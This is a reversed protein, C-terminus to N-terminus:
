TNLFYKFVASEGDPPLQGMWLGSIVGQKNVLLLTPTGRLGLSELTARRVDSIDVGIHTLYEKGEEVGHPFVAIVHLDRRETSERLLKQYFPASKLCFKCSKDLVLVLTRESKAWDVDPLSVKKGLSASMNSTARIKPFFTRRILKAGLLVVVAILIFVGARKTLKAWGRM